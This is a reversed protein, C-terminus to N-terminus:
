KQYDKARDRESLYVLSPHFPLLSCVACARSEPQGSDSSWAAVSWSRPQLVNESFSSVSSVLRRFSPVHSVGSNLTQTVTLKRQLTRSILTQTHPRSCVVCVM